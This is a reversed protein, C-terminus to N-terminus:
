SDPRQGLLVVPLSRLLISADTRLTRSRVYEIEIGAREPYPPRWRGRSTWAGFIGPRVALLERVHPEFERLEQQVVPRPGVLSMTGNIVNVLQPLEDIYTRRILRGIGTVRPDEPEPLKYGNSVYRSHLHEDGNLHSEADARMTRLKWCRFLHGDRGVRVHGYFLPRGSFVLVAIAALLLIPSALVLLILALGIDM